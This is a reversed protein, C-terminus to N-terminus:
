GSFSLAGVLPQYYNVVIYPMTSGALQIKCWNFQEDYVLKNM